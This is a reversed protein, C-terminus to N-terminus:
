KNIENRTLIYAICYTLFPFYYSTTVFLPCYTPLLLCISIPRRDHYPERALTVSLLLLSNFLLSFILGKKTFMVGVWSLSSIDFNSSLCDVGRGFLFQYFEASNFREYLQGYADSRNSASGISGDLSM